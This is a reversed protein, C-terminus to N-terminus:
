GEQSGGHYACLMPEKSEMERLGLSRTQKKSLSDFRTESTEVFVCNVFLYLYKEKLVHHPSYEFPKM